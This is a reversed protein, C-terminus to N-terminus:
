LSRHPIPDCRLEPDDVASYVGFERYRKVRDLIQTKDSTKELAKELYRLVIEMTDGRRRCNISKFIKLNGNELRLIHSFSFMEEYPSVHYIHGEILDLCGWVNRKTNSPDSLDYVFFARPRGGIVGFGTPIVKKYEPISTELISALEAFVKAREYRLDSNPPCAQEKKQAYGSISLLVVFIALLFSHRLETGTLLKMNFGRDM